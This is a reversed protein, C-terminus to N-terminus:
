MVTILNLDEEVNLVVWPRSKRCKNKTGVHLAGLKKQQGKSLLVHIKSSFFVQGPSVPCPPPVVKRPLIGQLLSSNPGGNLESRQQRDQLDRGANGAQLESSDSMKYRLQKTAATDDSYVM